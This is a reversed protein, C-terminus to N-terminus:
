EFRIKIDRIEDKLDDISINLAYNFPLIQSQYHNNQNLMVKKSMLFERSLKPYEKELLSNKDKPLLKNIKEVFTKGELENLTLKINPDKKIAYYFKSEIWVRIGCLYMIKNYTNNTFTTNTISHTNLEEILKVMYENTMDMFEGDLITYSKDYHFIKHYEENENKERAILLKLYGDTDESLINKLSLVSEKEGIYINQLYLKKESKEIYYYEFLNNHQSNVINIMEINHTFILIEKEESVTDVIEFLTKYQNILDYSSLPDDIILINNDNLKFEYLKFLLIILHIEGESYTSVERKFKIIIEKTNDNFNISDIDFKEIFYKEIDDKDKKINNYFKELNKELEIIKATNKNIEEKNKLIKIKNTNDGKCVIYDVIENESLTNCLEVIKNIEKEKLELDDFIFESFINNKNKEFNKKKEQFKLKLNHIGNTDCAPCKEETDDISNMLADYAKLLYAKKLKEFELSVDSIDKISKFNDFFFKKNKDAIIKNIEEIKTESIKFSKIEDNKYIEGLLDSVEKAKAQSTYGYSKITDRISNDNSLEQNRIKLKSIVQLKAGITVEKKNKIFSDITDYYDLFDYDPNNSKINKYISTKGIGNFGFIIKSKGTTEIKFSDDFKLHTTEAKTFKSNDFM